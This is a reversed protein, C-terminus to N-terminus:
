ILGQGIRQFLSVGLFEELIKVQKSIAGQTICLESAANTFSLNKAASEFAKLANLPPLKHKM